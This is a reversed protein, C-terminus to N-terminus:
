DKGHKLYYGILVLLFLLSVILLCLIVELLSKHFLIIAFIQFFAAFLSIKYIDTKGISLFFNAFLTAFSFLIIYISYIGLYDKLVKYDPAPFFIGLVLSPFVFYIFSLLISASGVILFALLVTGFLREKRERKYAILPFFAFNIPMILYFIAKGMLSLAAYQGSVIDSFFVRVLLIDTNSLLAIGVGALFFTYSFHIFDKRFLGVDLDKNIGRGNKSFLMYYLIILPILTSVSIAILPSIVSFGLILLTVSVIIKIIPQSINAASLLLFQMRGQLIGLPLTLFLSFIVASVILFIYEIHDIHLFKQIFPSAVVLLVLLCLAFIRLSKIGYAKLLNIGGENEQSKFSASFKVFVNTFANSFLGLLVLISTLSTLLGYDQVSLFRGMLLNYIYNTISVLFSGIFVISSGTILPHRIFRRVLAVVTVIM